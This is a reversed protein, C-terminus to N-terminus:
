SEQSLLQWAGLAVNSWLCDSSLFQVVQLVYRHEVIMPGFLTVIITSSSRDAANSVM